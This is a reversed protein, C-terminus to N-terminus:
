NGHLPFVLQEYWFWGEKCLEQKEQFEGIECTGQLVTNETRRNEETDKGCQCHPSSVDASQIKKGNGISFSLYHINTQPSYTL